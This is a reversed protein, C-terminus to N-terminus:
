DQSKKYKGAEYKRLIHDEVPIDYKECLMKCMDVYIRKVDDLKGEFFSTLSPEIYTNWLNQYMEKPQEEANINDVIMPGLRYYEAVSEAGEMRVFANRFKILKSIDTWSRDKQLAACTSTIVFCGSSSSSGSSSYSREYSRSESYTTRSAQKREIDDIKDIRSSSDKYGFIEYYM